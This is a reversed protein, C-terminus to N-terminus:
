RWLAAFANNLLGHEFNLFGLEYPCVISYQGTLFWSFELFNIKKKIKQRVFLNINTFGNLTGVTNRSELIWM